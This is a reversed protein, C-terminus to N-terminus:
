PQTKARAIFCNNTASRIDVFAIDDRSLLSDVYDPLADKPTIQGSGYVIRHDSCYGKILYQESSTLNPPIGDQDWATCDKACLFVPGTEAYPQPKPFPRAALILMAAGKPVQALCCRCPNGAGESVAREAPQGNVDAGGARIHAIYTADLPHYRTM